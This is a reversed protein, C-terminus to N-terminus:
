KLSYIKWFYQIEVRKQGNEKIKQFKKTLFGHLSQLSQQKTFLFVKKVHFIANKGIQNGLLEGLLVEPMFVRVKQLGVKIKAVFSAILFGGNLLVM